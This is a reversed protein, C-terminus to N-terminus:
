ASVPEPEMVPRKNLDALYNAYDAPHAEFWLGAADCDLATIPDDTLPPWDLSRGGEGVVAKSWYTEDALRAFVGGGEIQLTFDKILDGGHAYRLRLARGPLFEISAIRYMERITGEREQRNM